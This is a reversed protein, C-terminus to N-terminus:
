EKPRKLPEIQDAKVISRGHSRCARPTHKQEGLARRARTLYTTWTDFRPPPKYGELEGKYGDLEAYVPDDEPIGNVSLWKYAEHDELEEPKTEKKRAAYEFAFHAKRVSLKLKRIREARDGSAM